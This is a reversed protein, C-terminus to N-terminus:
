SNALLEVLTKIGVGTAGVARYPQAKSDWATGAIDLHVWPINGEIGAEIFKAGTISGAEREPRGINAIDALDSKIMDAYEEDMPFAWYKEGVKKGAEILEQALKDNNSFLGTYKNSLAAIVAGTLTALDVIKTAKFDKQAYAVADILVVRGEADTHLIEATKGSYTALIDGPKMAKGSMMNEALAMIGVANIKYGLKSIIKMTALTAVAGCCDYKMENMHPAPKAYLGGSDFTIGKGVIGWKEKSRINGIYELAVMYSPEDSGSAVSVFGGMGKRKAQAETLITIKLKCERAVKKVSELFVTPTLINAPTDALSRAQNIADAMLIGKKMGDQFGREAKEIIIEISALTVKESSTKYELSPDYAALECGLAVAEGVQDPTLPLNNPLILSLSKIKLLSSRVAVGAWNQLREFGLKEKKGLGVLLYNHNKTYAEYTEYIKGFKPNAKFLATIGEEKIQDKFAALGEEEFIPLVVLDTTISNLPKTSLQVKMDHLIRKFSGFTFGYRTYNCRYILRPSPIASMISEFDISRLSM